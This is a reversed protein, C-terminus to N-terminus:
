LNNTKLGSFKKEDLQQLYYSIKDLDINKSYKKSGNKLKKEINRLHVQLNFKKTFPKDCHPCLFKAVGLHIM